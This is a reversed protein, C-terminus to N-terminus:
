GDHIFLGWLGWTSQDLMPGFEPRPSSQLIPRGSAVSSGFAYRYRQIRLMIFVSRGTACNTVEIVSDPHLDLGYQLIDVYVPLNYSFPSNQAM